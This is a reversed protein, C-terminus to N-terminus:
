AKLIEKKNKYACPQLYPREPYFNRIYKYRDTRVCRIRDVTEDCRDRASVIYEQRNYDKALFDKGQMWKPIAIGALTLSTAAMDIHVVM